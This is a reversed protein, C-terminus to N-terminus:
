ADTRGALHMRVLMAMVAILIVACAAAQKLTLFEKMILAGFVVSSVPEFVSLIAALSAGCYEIGKQILISAFVNNLLALLVLKPLQGAVGAFSLTGTALGCVAGFAALAMCMCFVIVSKDESLIGSHEMYLMYFTWAFASAVAFAAGRYMSGSFSDALLAMGALCAAITIWAARPIKERFLLMAGLTVLAPYLFHLTTATGVPIYLYSVNLLFLTMAMGPFGLIILKAISSRSRVALSRHRALSSVLLMAGALTGRMVLLAPVGVGASSISKTIVACLGYLVASLASFLIGKQRTTM